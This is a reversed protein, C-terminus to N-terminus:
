SGSTRTRSKAALRADGFAAGVAGDGPRGLGAVLDVLLVPAAVAVLGPCMQRQRFRCGLACRRRRGPGGQRCWALGYRRAAPGVSSGPRKGWSRPLHGQCVGHYWGRLTVSTTICRHYRALLVATLHAPAMPNADGGARASCAPIPAVKSPAPRLRGRTVQRGTRPDNEHSREVQSLWMAPCGASPFSLAALCSGVATATSSVPM